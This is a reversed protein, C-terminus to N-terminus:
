VMVFAAWYYPNPNILRMQKQAELLAERKDMGKNLWNEYFYKMLEATEKDPVKWLSMIVNKAGAVKFARQLGYVGEGGKIDGLGTECASLIVIEVNSLDLLSIEYATIIGDESEDTIDNGAKVSNNAGSLVIGSRYLPNDLVSYNQKQDSNKALTNKSYDKEKEAFFFGHTSIHLIGIGIKGSLLKLNNENALLGTDLVVNINKKSIVDSIDLVEKMTGPLYNWTIGGRSASDGTNILQSKIGQFSFPSDRICM